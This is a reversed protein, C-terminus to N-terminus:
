KTWRRIYGQLLVQSPVYAILALTVAVISCIHTVNTVREGHHDHIVQGM